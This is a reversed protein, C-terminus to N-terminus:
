VVREGDSEKWLCIDCFGMAFLGRRWRFAHLVKALVRGWGDLCVGGAGFGEVQVDLLADGGFEGFELGGFGM